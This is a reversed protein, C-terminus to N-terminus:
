IEGVVALLQLNQPIMPTIVQDGDVIDGDEDYVPNIIYRVDWTYNGPELSDTDANQFTVNILGDHIQHISQKVITGISNKVSFVARDNEGFAYGTKERIVIGGTDGRSMTIRMDNVEFM